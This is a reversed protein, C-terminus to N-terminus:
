RRRKGTALLYDLYDVLQDWQEASLQQARAPLAMKVQTAQRAADRILQADVDLAIALGEITDDSLRTTKGNLINGVTPKSFRPRGRKDKGRDVVQQYSLPTGDGLERMRQSLLVQLPNGSTIEPQRVGPARRRTTTNGTMADSQSRKRRLKGDSVNTM